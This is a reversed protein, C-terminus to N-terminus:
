RIGVSVPGVNPPRKGNAPSRVAGKQVSYPPIAARRNPPDPHRDRSGPGRQYYAYRTLAGRDGLRAAFREDIRSMSVLRPRDVSRRCM